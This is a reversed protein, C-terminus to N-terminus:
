FCANAHDANCNVYDTATTADLMASPYAHSMAPMSYATATPIPLNDSVTNFVRIDPHNIQMKKDRENTLSPKQTTPYSSMITSIDDSDDEDIDTLLTDRKELARSRRNKKKKKGPSAGTWVTSASGPAPLTVPTVVKTVDGGSGTLDLTILTTLFTIPPTPTVLGSDVNPSGGVIGAVGASSTTVPLTPTNTTQIAALVPTPSTTVPITKTETVTAEKVSTETVTSLITKGAVVVSTVSTSTLTETRIHTSVTTTYSLSPDIPAVSTTPTVSVTNLTTVVYSTTLTDTRTSFGVRIPILKVESLTTTTVLVKENTRTPNILITALSRADTPHIAIEYQEPKIVTTNFGSTTITAYSTKFGHRIPLTKTWSAITTATIPAKPITSLPPTATPSDLAAALSPLPPLQTPTLPQHDREDNDDEDYDRPTLIITKTTTTITPHTVQGPLLSPGGINQTSKNNKRKRPRRQRHGSGGSNGNEGEVSHDHHPYHHGGRSRRRSHNNEPHNDNRNETDSFNEELNDVAEANDTLRYRERRNNRRRNSRTRVEGDDGVYRDRGNGFNGNNSNETLSSTPSRTQYTLYNSPTPVPTLRVRQSASSREINRSGTNRQHHHPHSSSFEEDGDGRLGTAGRIAPPDGEGGTGTLPHNRLQHHQHRHYNVGNLSDRNTNSNSNGNSTMASVRLGFVGQHGGRNSSQSNSSQPSSFSSSSSSSSRRTLSVSSSSSEGDLPAAPPTEVPSDNDNLSSFLSLRRGTSSTRVSRMGVGSTLPSPASSSLSDRGGHHRHRRNNNNNNSNHYRDSDDVDDDPPVFQPLSSSTRGQNISSSRSRPRTSHHHHHPSHEFSSSHRGNQGVIASNSLSSLRSTSDDNNGVEYEDSWEHRDNKNHGNNLHHGNHSDHDRHHHSNGEDEDEEEYDDFFPNSSNPLLATTIEPSLSNSPTITIVVTTVTVTQTPSQPGQGSTTTTMTTSKRGRVPSPFHISNKTMTPAAPSFVNSTTRTFQAPFGNIQTEYIEKTFLTLIGDGGIESSHLISAPTQTLSPTPTVMQTTAKSQESDHSERMSPLLYQLSSGITSSSTMTAMTTTTSGTVTIQLAKTPTIVQTESEAYHAYLNGITTGYVKKTHLTTLGDPGGTETRVEVTLLGTPRIISSSSLSTERATQTLQGSSTIVSSLSPSSAPNATPSAALLTADSSAAHYAPYSIASSSSSALSGTLELSM